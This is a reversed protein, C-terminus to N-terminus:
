TGTVKFSNKIIWVLLSALGTLFVSIIALRSHRSISESTIRQQHLFKLDSQQEHPDSVNVGYRELAHDMAQEVITKIQTQAAQSLGQDESLLGCEQECNPKRCDKKESHM